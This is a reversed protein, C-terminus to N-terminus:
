SSRIKASAVKLMDVALNPNRVVFDEFRSFPIEDGHMFVFDIAADQLIKDCLDNSLKVTDLANSPGLSSILHARCFEQLYPAEYEDSALYLARVHKKLRDSPLTGKYMFELFAELQDHKLGSAIIAKYSAKRSDNSDFISKFKKSGAALILKHAPIPKKVDAPLLYVDVYWEEKFAEFFFDEKSTETTM